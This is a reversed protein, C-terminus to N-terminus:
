ALPEFQLSFLERQHYLPVDVEGARAQRTKRLVDFFACDPSYCKGDSSNNALIYYVYGVNDIKCRQLRDNRAELSKSTQPLSYNVVVPTKLGYWNVPNELVSTCLLVDLNGSLFARGIAIHEQTHRKPNGYMKEVSFGQASLVSKLVEMLALDQVFVIANRKLVTKIIKCQSVLAAVKPHQVNGALFKLSHQEVQLFGSDSFLQKCIIASAPKTLQFRLQGMYWALSEYSQTLGLALCHYIKAYKSLEWFLEQFNRNHGCSNKVKDRLVMLLHFPPLHGSLVNMRIQTFMRSFDKRGEELSIIRVCSEKLMQCLPFALSQAAINQEALIVHESLVLKKDLIM